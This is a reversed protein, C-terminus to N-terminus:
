TIYGLLGDKIFIYRKIEPCFIIKDSKILDQKIKKGKYGYYFLEKEKMLNNLTIHIKKHIKVNECVYLNERRNDKRDLNIHHVEEGPMLVRGIIEERKKRSPSSPNNPNYHSYKM